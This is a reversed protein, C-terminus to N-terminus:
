GEQVRFTVSVVALAAYLAQKPSSHWPASPEFRASTVDQVYALGTLRDALVVSRARAALSTAARYGVEADRNNRAVAVLVVPLTWTEALGATRHDATAAETFLWVAPPEPPGTARDARVINTVDALRGSPDAREADLADGVGDLIGALADDLRPM